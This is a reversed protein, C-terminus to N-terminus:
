SGCVHGWTHTTPWHKTYLTNVKKVTGNQRQVANCSVHQGCCVASLHASYIGSLWSLKGLLTNTLSSDGLSHGPDPQARDGSSVRLSQRWEGLFCWPHSQPMSVDTPSYSEYALPTLSWLWLCSTLSHKCNQSLESPFSSHHHCLPPISQDWQHM